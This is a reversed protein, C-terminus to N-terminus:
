LMDKNKFIVTVIFTIVVAVLIIGYFTFPQGMTPFPFEVNMGMFSSIMTPVALIITVAALFKMVTDLKNSAITGFIEVMGNLIESYIQVMEMAQNNEIITDELIDEDEEYLKIIKGRNLRQLVLQNSKLSTNFYIMSKEFDLLSILNKNKASKKMLDEFTEIDKNILELYKLYEKAIKYLLLFVFRSKKYTHIVGTNKHTKYITGIFAVNAICITIFYDDKVVLMGLPITTYINNGKDKEIFPIDVVILTQNEDEDQDIHAKEAMDLPYKILNYEAGTAESVEKIEHETPSVLNVWCGKEYTKTEELIGTVMDTKYIKIM